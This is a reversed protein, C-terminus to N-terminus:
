SKSKGEFLQRITEEYPPRAIGAETIIATIYRHPTVDFAPNYVAVGEPATRVGRFQSVETTDREEIPIGDGNHLTM